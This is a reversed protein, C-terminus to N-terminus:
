PQNYVRTYDTWSFRVPPVTLDLGFQSANKSPLRIRQSSSWTSRVPEESTSNNSLSRVRRWGPQDPQRASGMTPCGRHRLAAVQTLPEADFSASGRDLMPVVGVGSIVVSVDCRLWVTDWDILFLNLGFVLVADGVRRKEDIPPARESSTGSSIEVAM